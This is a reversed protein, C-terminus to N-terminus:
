EYKKLNFKKVAMDVTSTECKYTTYEVETRRLAVAPYHIRERRDCHSRTLQRVLAELTVPKVEPNFHSAVVLTVESHQDSFQRHASLRLSSVLLPWKSGLVYLPIGFDRVFEQNLFRRSGTETADKRLTVSM